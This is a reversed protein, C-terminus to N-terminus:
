SFSFTYGTTSIPTSIPLTTAMSDICLKTDNILLALDSSNYLWGSGCSYGTSPILIVSTGSSLDAWSGAYAYYGPTYPDNGIQV